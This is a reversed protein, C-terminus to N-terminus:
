CLESDVKFLKICEITFKDGIKPCTVLIGITVKNNYNLKFGACVQKNNVDSSIFTYNEILRKNNEDVAWLFASSARYSIGSVELLYITDKLVSFQKKIIIGPTSKNQLITVLIQNNIKNIRVKQNPKLKKFDCNKLCYILKKSTM